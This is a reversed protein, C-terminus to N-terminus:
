KRQVPEYIKSRPIAIEKIFQEEGNRAMTKLEYYDIILYKLVQQWTECQEISISVMITKAELLDQWKNKTNKSKERHQNNPIQAPKLIRKKKWKKRLKAIILSNQIFDNATDMFNSYM